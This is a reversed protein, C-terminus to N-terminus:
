RSTQSHQAQAHLGETSPDMGTGHAQESLAYQAIAKWWLKQPNKHLGVVFCLSLQPFTQGAHKAGLTQMGRDDQWRMSYLGM